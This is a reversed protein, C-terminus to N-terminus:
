SSSHSITTSTRNFFKMSFSLKHLYRTSSKFFRMRMINFDSFLCRIISYVLFLICIIKYLRKITYANSQIPTQNYLRKITYANSQIPTQNYLRKITYANSHLATAHLPEVNLRRYWFCSVLLLKERAM